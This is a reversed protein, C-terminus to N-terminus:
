CIACIRCVLDPVEDYCRGVVLSEFFRPAELLYLAETVRGTRRICSCVLGGRVLDCPSVPFAGVGPISIEVFQGPVLEIQREPRFTFGHNDVVTQDISDIVDTFPQLTHNM